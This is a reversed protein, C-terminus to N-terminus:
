AGKQRWDDLINDPVVSLMEELDTESITEDVREGLRRLIGLAAIRPTTTNQGCIRIVHALIALEIKTM